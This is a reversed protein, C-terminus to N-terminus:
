LSILRETWRTATFHSTKVVVLVLSFISSHARGAVRSVRGGGVSGGGGGCVCVCVGGWEEGVGGGGSGAFRTRWDM